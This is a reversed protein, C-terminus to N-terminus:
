NRDQCFEINNKNNLKELIANSKPIFPSKYDKLGQYITDIIIKPTYFADLTSTKAKEYEAYDLTNILEKFEKEWEKNQFDFAQPIGGWGSFKNLIEQEQKTAYRNEQEITKSLKIAQLNKQFRDKLSGLYVEDDSAFDLKQGSKFSRGEYGDYGTTLELVSRQNNERSKTTQGEDDDRSIFSFLNTTRDRYLSQSKNAGGDINGYRNLGSIEEQGSRQKGLNSTGDTSTTTGINNIRVNGYKQNYKSLNTDMEGTNNLQISSNKQRDLGTSATFISDQKFEKGINEYKSLKGNQQENEKREDTIILEEEIFYFLSPQDDNLKKKKAM